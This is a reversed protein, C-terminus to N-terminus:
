CIYVSVQILNFYWPLKSSKWLVDIEHKKGDFYVSGKISAIEGFCLRWSLCESWEKKISGVESCWSTIDPWSLSTKMHFGQILFSKIEEDFKRLNKM